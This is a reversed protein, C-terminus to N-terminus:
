VMADAPAWVRVGYVMIWHWTGPLCLLVYEYYTYYVHILVTFTRMDLHHLLTCTVPPYSLKESTMASWQSSLVRPYCSHLVLYVIGTHIM